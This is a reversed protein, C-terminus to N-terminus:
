GRRTFRLSCGILCLYLFIVVCTIFFSCIYCFLGVIFCGLKRVCDEPEKIMMEYTLVLVNPKDRISWWGLVHDIYTYIYMYIHM